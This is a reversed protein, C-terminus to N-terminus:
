RPVAHRKCPLGAFRVKFRCPQFGAQRGLSVPAVRAIFDMRCFVFFLLQQELCVAFVVSLLDSVIQSVPFGFGGM